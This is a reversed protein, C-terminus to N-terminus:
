RKSKEEYKLVEDITVQRKEFEADAEVQKRKCVPGIGEQISQFTKLERNCRRCTSM